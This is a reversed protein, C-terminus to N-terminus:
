RLYWSVAHRRQTLLEVRPRDIHHQKSDSGQMSVQFSPNSLCRVSITSQYSRRPHSLAEFTIWSPEIPIPTGLRSAPLSILGLKREYRRRSFATNVTLINLIRKKEAPRPKYVAICAASALCSEGGVADCTRGTGWM